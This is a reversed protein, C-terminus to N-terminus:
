NRNILLIRWCFCYYCIFYKWYIHRKSLPPLMLFTLVILINILASPFYLVMYAITDIISVRNFFEVIFVTIVALIVNHWFWHTEFFHAIKNKVTTFYLGINKIHSM